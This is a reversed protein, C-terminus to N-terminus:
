QRRHELMSPTVLTHEANALLNTYWRQQANAVDGCSTPFRELVHELQNKKKKKSTITVRLRRIALRHYALYGQGLWRDSHVIATFHGSKVCDGQHNVVALLDYMTQTNQGVQGEAGMVFQSLNLDVKPYRVDTKNKQLSQLDDPTHRLKLMLVPPAKLLRTTKVCSQRGKCKQCAWEVTCDAFTKHLCEVLTSSSQIIEVEM